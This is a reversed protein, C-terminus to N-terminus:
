DGWNVRHMKIGYEYKHYVAKEQEFPEKNHKAFLADRDKIYQPNKLIGYHQGTMSKYPFKWNISKDRIAKKYANGCRKCRNTYHNRNGSKEFYQVPKEIKCVKCTKNM